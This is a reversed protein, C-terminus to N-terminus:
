YSKESFVKYSILFDFEAIWKSTSKKTKKEFM